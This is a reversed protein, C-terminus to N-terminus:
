SGGPAPTAPSRFLTAGFAIALVTTAAFSVLLFWSPAAGPLLRGLTLAAIATFIFNAMAVPRGFVGGIRSYRNMWALMFYGFLAGALLQLLTRALPTSEAGALALTEDPAFLLPLTAILYVLASATLLLNPKDSM